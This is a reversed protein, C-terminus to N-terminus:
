LILAGIPSGEAWCCARSGRALDALRGSCMRPSSAPRGLRALPSGRAHLRRAARGQPSSAHRALSGPHRSLREFGLATPPATSARLVVEVSPSVPLGRRGTLEYGQPLLSLGAPFAETAQLRGAPGRGGAVDRLATARACDSTTSRSAPGRVTHRRHLSIFLAQGPAQLVTAAVSGLAFSLEMLDAAPEELGSRRVRRTWQRYVAAVAAGDRSWTWTDAYAPRDGSRGQSPASPSASDHSRTEALEVHAPAALLDVDNYTRQPEDAYVLRVLVPGRPLIPEVRSAQAM